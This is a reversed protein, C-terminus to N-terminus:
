GVYRYYEIGLDAFHREDSLGVRDIVFENQPLYDLGSVARGDHLAIYQEQNLDIAFQM